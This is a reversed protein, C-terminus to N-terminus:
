NTQVCQSSSKKIHGFTDVFIMFFPNCRYKPWNLNIKNIYAILNTNKFLLVYIIIIIIVTTINTANM